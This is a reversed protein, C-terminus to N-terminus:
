ELNTKLRVISNDLGTQVKQNENLGQVYIRCEKLNSYDKVLCPIYPRENSIETSVLNSIYSLTGESVLIQVTCNMDNYNCNRYFVNNSVHVGNARNILLEAYRGPISNYIKNDRYDFYDGDVLQVVPMNFGSMANNSYFINDGFLCACRIDLVNDSCNNQFNNARIEINNSGADQEPNNGCGIYQGDVTRGGRTRITILSYRDGQQPIRNEWSNNTIKINEGYALLLGRSDFCKNDHVYVNKARYMVGESLDIAISRKGNYFKNNSIESDYCFANFASGNYNYVENNKVVCRGDLLTFFSASGNDASSTSKNNLFYTINKPNVNPVCWFIEKAVDNTTCNCILCKDYNIIAVASTSIRTKDLLDSGDEKILYPGGYFEDISINNLEVDAVNFIQICRRTTKSSVGKLHGRIKLNRIKVYGISKDVWPEMYFCEGVHFVDWKLNITCNNFDAEISNKIEIKEINEYVGQSFLLKSGHSMDFLMQIEDQTHAVKLYVDIDRILKKGTIHCGTFTASEGIFPGDYKIITNNGKIRGNSLYGGNRFILTCCAPITVEKGKLDWNEKIECVFRGQVAMGKLLEDTSIYHVTSCSCLFIIVLSTLHSLSRM